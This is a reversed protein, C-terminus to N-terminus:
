TVKQPIALACPARSARRAAPAVSIKSEGSARAICLFRLEEGQNEAKKRPDNQYPVTACITVASAAGHPCSEVRSQLAFWIRQSKKLDDAEGSAGRISRTDCPRRLAVQM